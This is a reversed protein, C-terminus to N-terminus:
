LFVDEILFFEPERDRYLTIALVDYQIWPHGPHRQLYVTAAAQLSKFKKRTVSDEPKGFPSSNRSKVEIFHLFKKPPAAANGPRQRSAIIDVELNGARWNRELIHYGKKVLWQTALEEGEKGLDNHM